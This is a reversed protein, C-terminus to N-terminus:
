GVEDQRQDLESELRRRFRKAAVAQQADVLELEVVRGTKQEHEAKKSPETRERIPRPDERCRRRRRSLQSLPAEIRGPELGLDRSQRVHELKELYVPAVM